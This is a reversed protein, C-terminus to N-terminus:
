RRYEALRGVLDQVPNEVYAHTVFNRHSVEGTSVFTVNGQLPQQKLETDFPVARGRLIHELESNRRSTGDTYVSVFFASRHGSIWDAFTDLEGYLADLLIVGRLRGKVGGKQLSAAAPLYGGSYAVLVIPMNAFTREARPVGYLKALQTGAEAVFRAFAGPEWFKGPSSDAADLAFQPAVLVANIGSASIQAPVEQRELVDRTLTAGHGHFFVIMVSPRSPDFGAPIHLLVHRDAYTEDAWFVRGRFTRHGRRGDQDAVNLFNGDTEGLRGDYPFPSTDFETLNTKAEIAPPVPMRLPSHLSATRTRAGPAPAMDQQGFASWSRAVVAAPTDGAERGFRDDTSLRPMSLRPVSTTADQNDSAPPRAAPAPDPAVALSNPNGNLLLLCCAIGATILAASVALAAVGLRSRGRPSAVLRAAQAPRREPRPRPATAGASRPVRLIERDSQWARGFARTGTITDAGADRGHRVPVHVGAGRSGQPVRSDIDRVSM